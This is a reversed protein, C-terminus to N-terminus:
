AADGNQASPSPTPASGLRAQLDAEKQDAAKQAAQARDIAEDLARGFREPNFPVHGGCHLTADGLKVVYGKNARVWDYRRAKENLEAILDHLRGWYEMEMASFECGPNKLQELAMSLEIQLRARSGLLRQIRLDRMDPGSENEIRESALKLGTVFAAEMQAQRVLSAPYLDIDGQRHPAEPLAPLEAQTLPSVEEIGLVDDLASAYPRVCWTSFPSPQSSARELASTCDEFVEARGLSRTVRSPEDKATFLGLKLHTKACQLEVVWGAPRAANAQETTLEMPRYIGIKSLAMKAVKEADSLRSFTLAYELDATSAHSEKCPLSIDRVFHGLLTTTDPETLALVWLPPKFSFDM